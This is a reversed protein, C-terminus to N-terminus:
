TRRMGRLPLQDAHWPRVLRPAGAESRRVVVMRGARAGGRRGPGDLRALGGPRVADRLDPLPQGSPDQEAPAPTSSAAPATMVIEQHSPAAPAASSGHEAAM